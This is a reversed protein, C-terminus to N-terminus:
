SWLYYLSSKGGNEFVHSAIDSLSKILLQPGDTREIAVDALREAMQQEQITFFGSDLLNDM